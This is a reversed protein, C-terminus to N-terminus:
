KRLLCGWLKKKQEESLNLQDCSMFTKPPQFVLSEAQLFPKKKSSFFLERWVYLFGFVCVEADVLVLVDVGM